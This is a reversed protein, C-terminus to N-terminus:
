SRYVLRTEQDFSAAYEISSLESARDLFSQREGLWDDETTQRYGAMLANVITAILEPTNNVDM